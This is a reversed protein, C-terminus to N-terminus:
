KSSKKAILGLSVLLSPNMSSDQVAFLGACFLVLQLDSELLDEMDVLLKPVITVGGLVSGSNDVVSGNKVDNSLADAVLSASSVTAQPPCCAETDGIDCGQSVSRLSVALQLQRTFNIVKRSFSTDLEAERCFRISMSSVSKRLEISVSAVKMAHLFQPVRTSRFKSSAMAARWM